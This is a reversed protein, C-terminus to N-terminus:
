CPPWWTWRAATLAPYLQDRSMPIMVVHVKLNGTKLDKNLEEEFIKMSEFTLGRERGRDLFYHTRNFTVAVRIVRRKVLEDFDGTFPEDMAQRVSSPLVDYPTAELDAEPASEPPPAAPPPEEKQGSCAGALLVLTLLLPLCPKHFAPAIM